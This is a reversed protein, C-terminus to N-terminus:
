CECEGDCTDLMSYEKLQKEKLLELIKCVSCKQEAHLADISFKKLLRLPYSGIKSVIICKIENEALKKILGLCDGCGHDTNKIIEVSLVDDNILKIITFFPCIGFHECIKADLGGPNESPVAIKM